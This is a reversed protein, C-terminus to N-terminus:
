KVPRFRETARAVRAAGAGIERSKGTAGKADEAVEELERVAASREERAGAGRASSELEARVAELELAASPADGFSAVQEIVSRGLEGPSEDQPPPPPSPTNRNRRGAHSQLDVGAFAALKSPTPAGYIGSSPAAGAARLHLRSRMLCAAADDSVEVINADVGIPAGEDSSSDDDDSPPPDGWDSGDDNAVPDVPDGFAASPSMAAARTEEFSAPPEEIVARGRSRPTARTRPCAVRECSHSNSLTKFGREIETTPM